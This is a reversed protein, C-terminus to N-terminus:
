AKRFETEIDEYTDADEVSCLEVFEMCSNNNLDLEEWKRKIEALDKGEIFVESRFTIRVEM